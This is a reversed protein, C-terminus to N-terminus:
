TNFKIDNIKKAILTVIPVSVANGALKYLASDSLKPLKYDNPFGQLNFCERPTLKRIGKKDKLLPVNHGGTGMNATLTPCCNSKNERIYYRRYQYLINKDINEKVGKKIKDYVELNKSYYYKNDINKELFSNIKDKEEINPFNFNFKDYENKNKFCVIYIRERNQPITTLDCTNLIKHKIFYGRKSLEYLITNFTKGYIVKISKNDNDLEKKYEFKGEKNKHKIFKGNSDKELKYNIKKGDIKYEWDHTTLNKVNELIVIGPKHTDIIKLIKWFVNSREDDFGKKNGAISFPQCNHSIINEIVYSNDNEVEFNYVPENQVYNKEIKFPAYWVYGNEIFCSQKKVEDRTYGKIHYTNRQNVKTTKPRINKKISFLHGLKLYLRQLSFVLNHSVNTFEYYNNKTNYGYANHYGNVFEQIYEIPADQVWEPIFKEQSYKYFQKFINFWVFDSCDYTNFNNSSPYKKDTLQLINNIRHLIDKENKTNIYFIIKNLYRDDSKNKEICGNVIFYGIMFWMDPNDLKIKTVDTKQHNINKDFNFFPIINNENIKMGFYHNKNLEHAKKWEPNKFTYEYKRLKNNWTRIKERIYFPHEDTCKFSTNYKPTINYLNGNYNKHQLNIIKQFLGTHTMLTDTFVVEEINKYGNNTLVKTGEVFCPFGACIIDHSPIDDNKIDNLDKLIFNTNPHNLKFIKQSNKEMDNALICKFNNLKEFAYSFAGTGAFLDLIKLKYM